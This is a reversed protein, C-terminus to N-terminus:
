ARIGVWVFIDFFKNDLVRKWLIKYTFRDRADNEISSYKKFKEKFATM